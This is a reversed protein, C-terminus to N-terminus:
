PYNPDADPDEFALIFPTIELVGLEFKAAPWLSGQYEKDGVTLAILGGSKPVFRGTKCRRDFVLYVAVDCVAVQHYYTEFDGYDSSFRALILPEAAVPKLWDLQIARFDATPVAVPQAKARSKRSKAAGATSALVADLKAEFEDVPPPEQSEQTDAGANKLRQITAESVADKKIHGAEYMAALIDEQSSIEGGVPVGNSLIRPKSGRFENYWVDKSMDFGDEGAYRDRPFEKLEITKSDM